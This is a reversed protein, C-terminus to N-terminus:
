RGAEVPITLDPVSISFQVNCHTCHDARLLAASIKSLQECLRTKKMKAKWAYSIQAHLFFHVRLYFIMQMKISVDGQLLFFLDNKL